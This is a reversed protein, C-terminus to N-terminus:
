VMSLNSGGQGASRAFRPDARWVKDDAQRARYAWAQGAEVLVGDAAKHQLEPQTM